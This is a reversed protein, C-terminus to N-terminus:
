IKQIAVQFVCSAAGFSLLCLVQFRISCLAISWEFFFIVCVTSQYGFYSGFVGVLVCIGFKKWTCPATMECNSECGRHWEATIRDRSYVARLVSNHHVLSVHPSRAARSSIIRCLRQITHSVVALNRDGEALQLILYTFSAENLFTFLASLSVFPRAPNSCYDRPVPSCFGLFLWGWHASGQM